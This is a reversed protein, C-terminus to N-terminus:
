PIDSPDASDLANYSDMDGRGATPLDGDCFRCKEAKDKIQEIQKENTIEVMHLSNSVARCKRTHFTKNNTKTFYIM